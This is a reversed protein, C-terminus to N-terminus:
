SCCPWTDSQTPCSPACGASLELQLHGDPLFAYIRGSSDGAFIYRPLGSATDTVTISATLSGDLRVAALLAMHDAWSKQGRALLRWQQRQTLQLAEPSGQMAASAVSVSLAKCCLASSTESLLNPSQASLDAPLRTGSFLSLGDTHRASRLAAKSAVQGSEQPRLGAPQQQLAVSLREIAAAADSLLKQLEVVTDAITDQGDGGEAGCVDGPAAASLSVPESLPGLICISVTFCILGRLLSM